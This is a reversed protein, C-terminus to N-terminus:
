EIPIHNIGLSYSHTMIFCMFFFGMIILMSYILAIPFVLTNMHKITQCSLEFCLLYQELAATM